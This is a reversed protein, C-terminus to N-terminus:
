HVARRPLRPFTVSRTAPQSGQRCPCHLAGLGQDLAEQSCCLVSHARRSVPFGQLWACLASEGRQHTRSLLIQWSVPQGCLSRLEQLPPLQLASRGKMDKAILLIQWTVKPTSSRLSSTSPGPITAARLLRRYEMHARIRRLM